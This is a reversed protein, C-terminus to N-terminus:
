RSWEVETPHTFCYYRSALSFMCTLFMSGAALLLLLTNIAANISLLLSRCCVDFIITRNGPCESFPVAAIIATPRAM